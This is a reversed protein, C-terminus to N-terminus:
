QISAYTNRVRESIQRLMLVALFVAVGPFFAPWWHGFIIHPAGVTIMSGWEPHPIKVGFGLFRLGATTQIAYACGISFQGFLPIVANPLLHRFIVAIPTAGSCRAAQVFESNKLGLVISRVIKQYGPIVFFALVLILNVMNNGVVALVGMAFLIQPFSQIVESLYNLVDDISGGVYGSVIGLPVGLSAGLLVALMATSFDTRTAYLTRSYIDMGYTDTGFFHELSPAELKDRINPEVPSHTALVPAFIAVIGFMLILYCLPDKLSKTFLISLKEFNM